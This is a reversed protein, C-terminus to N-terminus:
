ILEFEHNQHEIFKILDTYIISITADNRNPHFLLRNDILVSDIYIKVINNIDNIIGLPTCSGKTLGLINYLEDESCFSLHKLDHEKEFSKFDFRKDEQLIILYYNKKKDKLFLNKCGIGDLMNSIRKAEEVTYVPEHELYDYKINLNDLIEFIDM